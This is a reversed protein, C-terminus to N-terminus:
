LFGGLTQGAQSAGSLLSSILVNRGSRRLVRAQKEAKETIRSAERIGKAKTEALMMLSSGPTLQIGSKIFSLKQKQSTTIAEERRQEALRAADEEIEGATRELAKKQEIGSFIKGGAGLAASGALIMTEVGM